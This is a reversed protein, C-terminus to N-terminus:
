WDKMHANYKKICTPTVINEGTKRKKKGTTSVSTDHLVSLMWVVRKEEWAPLLIDGKKSFMIDGKKM